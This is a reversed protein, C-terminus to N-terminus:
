RKTVCEDYSFLANAVATLAALSAADLDQSATHDGVSLYAEARAPDEAFWAQQEKLLSEIVRIEEAAPRRSTLVRFLDPLAAQSTGREVLLREALARSAEVFQPGNMLVFAELPSLTRERNVRCVDRKTADLVMMVPAPGTRKWYTYVSRRYLGEGKDRDVPKFSAEVEYPKAPPGGQYDVLLGSVALANDRLMEAPMRYSSIRALWQNNPDHAVLDESTASSQRYTASMAIQRLLRKVDWGHEMFDLALWDLLEPHTPPNGQSGFDEPTRVLGHGFMLQWYHNIAVRATLPQEPSTLWQALGLRNPPLDPGFEPLAAPTGPAVEDRRSDYAGRHLLWTQRPTELERMVMIEQIGDVAASRDNRAKQLVALQERYAPNVTSLYYEFLQEVEERSLRAEQTKLVESLRTHDFLQTMEIPTLERDFVELEDAQGSTFGRDRRREGLALNEKDDGGTIDKYLTIEKYLNDRVVEAAAPKGDIFISLGAARSSGDYCVTVHHWEDM